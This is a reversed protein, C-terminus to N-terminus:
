MKSCYGSYETSDTGRSIYGETYKVRSVNASYLDGYVNVAGASSSTNIIHSIGDKYSVSINYTDCGKSDCRSYLNQKINLLLFVRPKSFNCDGSASCFQYTEPICIFDHQTLAFNLSNFDLDFKKDTEINQTYKNQVNENSKNSYDTTKPVMDKNYTSYGSVPGNQTNSISQKTTYIYVLFIVVPLFLIIALQYINLTFKM